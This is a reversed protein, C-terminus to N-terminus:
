FTATPKVGVAHQAEKLRAMIAPPGLGRRKHREGGDDEGFDFSDYTAPQRNSSATARERCRAHRDSIGRERGTHVM